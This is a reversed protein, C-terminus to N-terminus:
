MTALEAIWRLDNGTGGDIRDAGDGGSLGDNGSSGGKSCTM